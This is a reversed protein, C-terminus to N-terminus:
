VDSLTFALIYVTLFSSILNWYTQAQIFNYENRSIKHERM